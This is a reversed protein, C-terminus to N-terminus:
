NEKKTESFYALEGNKYLEVFYYDKKNETYDYTKVSWGYLLKINKENKIKGDIM